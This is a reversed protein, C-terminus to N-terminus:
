GGRQWNASIRVGFMDSVFDGLENCRTDSTSERLAPRRWGDLLDPPILKRGALHEAACLVYFAAAEIHYHEVISKFLQWDIAVYDLLAIVDILHHLGFRPRDFAEFYLKFCSTFVNWTSNLVPVATGDCTQLLVLDHLPSAGAFAFHLAWHVDACVHFVPGTALMEYAFPVRRVFDAGLLWAPPNTLRHDRVFQALEYHGVETRVIEEWTAPRFHQYDASCSAQVFGLDNMVVRTHEINAHDVLIDIDGGIRIWAPRYLWLRYATGKILAHRISLGTLTRSIELSARRQLVHQLKAHLSDALWRQRIAPPLANALDLECLRQYVIVGIVHGDAEAALSEWDIAQTLIKQFDKSAKVKSNGTPSLLVSLVGTPLQYLHNVM